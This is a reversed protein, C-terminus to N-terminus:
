GMLASSVLRETLPSGGCHGIRTQEPQEAVRLWAYSAGSDTCGVVGGDRPEAFLRPDRLLAELPKSWRPLVQHAGDIGYAHWRGDERFLLATPYSPKIPHGDTDYPPMPLGPYRLVAVFEQASRARKLAALGFREVVLREVDSRASQVASPMTPTPM